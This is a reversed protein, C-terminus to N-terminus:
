SRGQWQDHPWTCKKSEHLHDPLFRFLCHDSYVNIESPQCSLAFVTWCIVVDQEDNGITDDAVKFSGLYSSRWASRWWQQWLTCRCRWQWRSAVLSLDRMSTIISLDADMLCLATMEAEDRGIDIMMTPTPWSSKLTIIITVILNTNIFIMIISIIIVIILAHRLCKVTSESSNSIVIIFILKRLM